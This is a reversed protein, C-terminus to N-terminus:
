FGMYIYKRITQNAYFVERKLNKENKIYILLEIFINQLPKIM